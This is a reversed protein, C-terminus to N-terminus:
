LGPRQPFPTGIQQSVINFSSNGRWILSGAFRTATTGASKRPFRNARGSPKRCHTRQIAVRRHSM